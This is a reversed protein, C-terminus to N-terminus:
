QQAPGVIRAAICRLGLRNFVERASFGPAAVDIFAVSDKSNACSKQLLRMASDLGSAHPLRFVAPSVLAAAAGTPLSVLPLGMTRALAVALDDVWADPLAQAQNDDDLIVGPFEVQSALLSAANGIDRHYGPNHWAQIRGLFYPIVETSFDVEDKGLSAVYDGVEPEMIYVAANALNGPPRSVKEHFAQVAGYEDLELIGCTQPSDTAFTMMTMAAGPIRQSHAVIFAGLPADCLNDAHVLMVPETGCFDRNAVLTGGTGLLVPEHVVRVRGALRSASLWGRVLQPLHHTNVLIESVGAADLSRLWYELLPRGNVPMLCKPLIQTLPGLRTGLGAALLIARM